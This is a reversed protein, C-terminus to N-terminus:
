FSIRCQHGNSDTAMWALQGQTDTLAIPVIGSQPLKVMVPQGVKLNDQFTEIKDNPASELSVPSLFARSVPSSM